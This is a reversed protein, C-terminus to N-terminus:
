VYNVADLVDVLSIPIVLNIYPTMTAMRDWHLRKDWKPFWINSENKTFLQLFTLLHHWLSWSIEIIWIFEDFQWMERTLPEWTQEHFIKFYHQQLSGGSPISIPPTYQRLRSGPTKFACGMLM